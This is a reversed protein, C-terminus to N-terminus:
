RNKQAMGEAFVADLVTEILWIPQSEYQEFTWGMRECVLYIAVDLPLDSV